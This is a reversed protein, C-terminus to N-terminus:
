SMSDDVTVRRLRDLVPLIDGLLEPQQSIMEDLTSGGIGPQGGSYRANVSLTPQLLAPVYGLAIQTDRMQRLLDSLTQVERRVQELPIGLTAEMKAAMTVRQKQFVILGALEQITDVDIEAGRVLDEIFSQPLFASRPLLRAYKQLTRALSRTTRQGLPDDPGVRQKIWTAVRYSSIGAVLRGHIAPYLPHETLTRLRKIRDGLWIGMVQSDPAPGRRAELDGDSVPVLDRPRTAVM